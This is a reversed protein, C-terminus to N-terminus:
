QAALVDVVFRLPGAPYGPKNDYALKTPIDLQVRSGTRVGVLGQDWGPIVQGVGIQFQAPEGRRWSSDFEEGTGYYVGVYNVVITQGARVAPGTGEILPTVVLRTPEGSGAQVSPPQSLRPDTEPPAGPVSPSGSPAPDAPASPSPAASPSAAAAPVTGVRDEQDDDRLVILATLGAAVLVVGTVAGALRQRHARAAAARAAAAEAAARREQKTPRRQSTSGPQEPRSVSDSM